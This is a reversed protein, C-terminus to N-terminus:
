SNVPVTVNIEVLVRYARSCQNDERTVNRFERALGLSLHKDTEIANQVKQMATAAFSENESVTQEKKIQKNMKTKHTKCRAVYCNMAGFGGLM